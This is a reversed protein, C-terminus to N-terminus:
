VRETVAASSTTTARPQALASLFDEARRESTHQALVRERARAGIRGIEAESLELADLSDATSRAIVIEEGPTFFEDLGDWWDSLITTGCAAAEFLRGSPCWGMAAMPERTLNMTIRSSSYFASHEDPPLHRVFYTNATWPFDQPYQAGGILFRHNPRQRSPEIFLADLGRQRDKAYTGLYSLDAQYHPAAAVRRHISCDVHGYLPLTHQAGLRQKLEDLAKGGTFSLVLDFDRLGSAGLYSLTEGEALRALTVPTDLDYFVRLAHPAVLVTETAAIGDPCYSTVIAADADSIERRATERTEEWDRYLILKGGEIEYLDRAGAYYPLDKEFFVIHCGRAALARFLGRWLTAHGNGWSSSVTLGFIVIKMHARRM